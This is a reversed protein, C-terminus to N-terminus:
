TNRQIARLQSTVPVMNEHVWQLATGENCETKKETEGSSCATWPKCSNKGPAHCNTYDGCSWGAGGFFSNMSKKSLRGTEIFKLKKM